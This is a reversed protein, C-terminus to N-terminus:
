KIGCHPCVESNRPRKEGCTPCPIMDVDNSTNTTNPQTVTDTPQPQVEPAKGLNIPLDEKWKYMGGNFYDILIPFLLMFADAIVVGPMLERTVTGAGIRGDQTVARFQHSEAKPDVEYVDSKAGVKIGDRFIDSPVDPNLQVHIPQPSAHGLVTGCGTNMLASTSAVVLCLLLTTLRRLM